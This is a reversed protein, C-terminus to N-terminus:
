LKKIFVEYIIELIVELGIKLVKVFLYIIKFKIWLFCYIFINRRKLIGEVLDLISM